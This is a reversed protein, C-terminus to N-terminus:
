VGTPMASRGESVGVADSVGVSVDVGVSVSVKVAVTDLVGEAVDVAVGVLM